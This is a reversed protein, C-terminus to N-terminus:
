RHSRRVFAALEAETVRWRSGGIRVVALDGIAIRYRVWKVGVSLREAVEAVSLLVPAAAHHEHAPAASPQELMSQEPERAQSAVASGRRVPTAFGSNVGAKAASPHSASVSAPGSSFSVSALTQSGHPRHGSSRGHMRLAYTAPEIGAPEVMGSALKMSNEDVVVEGAGRAWPERRLPTAGAGPPPPTPISESTEWSGGEAAKAGARKREAREAAGRVDLKNQEDVLHGASMHGYTNTTLRPDSHRVLKQVSQLSAGSELMGTAYSHRTAHFGIKPAKPTCTMKMNCGPCYRTADDPHIELYGGGRKSSVRLPCGETTTQGYRRASGAPARRCRFEYHEVIGARVMAAQLRLDFRQDKSRRNGDHDPFMWESPSDMWEALYPMLEPHIPVADHRNGKTTNRASRLKGKRSKRASRRVMIVGRELDVDIKKLALMEGRRLGALLCVAFPGAWYKGAAGLVPLIQELTLFRIEHKDPERERTALAPNNGKPWKGFQAAVDFVTSFNARIRNITREALGTREDDIEVNGEDDTKGELAAFYEELKETTILGVLLPGLPSPGPKGRNVKAGGHVHLRSADHEAGDLTRFHMKWAYDCLDAFTGNFLMGGPAIGKAKRDEAEQMEHNMKHAQTKGKVGRMREMSWEGDARKVRSYWAISGDKRKRAIPDAM